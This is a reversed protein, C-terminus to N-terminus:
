TMRIRAGDGGKATNVPIMKGDSKLLMEGGNLRLLVERVRETMSNYHHVGREKGSMSRDLFDDSRREFGTSSGNFLLVYIM